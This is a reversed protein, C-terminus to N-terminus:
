IIWVRFADGYDYVEHLADELEGEDEAASVTQALERVYTGEDVCGRFPIPTRMTPPTETAKPAWRLLRDAIAARTRELSGEEDADYGDLIPQLGLRERWVAM